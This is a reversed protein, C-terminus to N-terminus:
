VALAVERNVRHSFNKGGDRKVVRAAHIAFCRKGVQHIPQTLM